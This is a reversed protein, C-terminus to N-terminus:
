RLSLHDLQLMVKYKQIQYPSFMNTMKYFTNQAIKIFCISFNKQYMYVVAQSAKDSNLVKIYHRTLMKATETLANEFNPCSNHQDNNYDSLKLYQVDGIRRRNFLILALTANVM